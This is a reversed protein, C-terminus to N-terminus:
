TRRYFHRLTRSLGFVGTREIAYILQLKWHYLCLLACVEQLWHSFEKNTIDGAHYYTALAAFAEMRGGWKKWSKEKELFEAVKVAGDSVGVVDLKAQPDCLEQVVHNFIYDVHEATNRNGLITNKVDDFRYPLEVASKQPLAL